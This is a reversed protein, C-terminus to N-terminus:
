RGKGFTIRFSTGAGRLLEITGGLQATLTNVLRLGLTATNRFDLNEPFGIGNDSVILLLESDSEPQLSINIQGKLGAPFAHKLANSVLENVILGCPIARDMNLFVNDVGINLGITHSNVGYSIFLDAALTQIYSALDIKELDESQYLHEHMLAMSEVRSRSDKFVALVAADNIYAAQLSLLSSVIQLNNKVRHHIEKLLMEKEKLSAKILNETKKRDSIDRLMVSFIKKGRLDFKSISAEASFETQDKRRGFVERREGMKRSVDPSKAFETIHRHHEEIFRSPLLLDLPQGMVEQISYGFVREAGQNFMLIRQDEEVSIIADEAIDLIAVSRLAEEARNRETIDRAITSAGIIQGEANRIPSITLSVDVRSGDKRVRVAEYHDVREGRRIKELIHRMEDAHDPPMLVSIPRGEVEEALYGYIREAGGNWSTIIGELTKGIIADNSSEVIAALRSIAEHVQHARRRKRDHDAQIKQM